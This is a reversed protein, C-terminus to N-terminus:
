RARLIQLALSRRLECAAEFSAGEAGKLSNERITKQNTSKMWVRQCVQLATASTGSLFLYQKNLQSKTNNNKKKRANSSFLVVASGLPRKWRKGRILPTTYAIVGGDRRAGGGASKGLYQGWILKLEEATHRFWTSTNM